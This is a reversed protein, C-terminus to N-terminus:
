GIGEFIRVTFILDFSSTVSLVGGQCTRRKGFDLTAENAKL